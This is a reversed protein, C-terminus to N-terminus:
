TQFSFCRRCRWLRVAFCNSVVKNAEMTCKLLLRQDMKAQAKAEPDVGDVLQRLYHAKVNTQQLFKQEQPGYDVKGTLKIPPLIHDIMYMAARPDLHSKDKSKVSDKSSKANQEGYKHRIAKSHPKPATTPAKRKLSSPAPSSVHLDKSSSSHQTRKANGPSIYEEPENEDSSGGSMDSNHVGSIEEDDTSDEDPIGELEKTEGDGWTTNSTTTALKLSGETEYAASDTEANPAGGSIQSTSRSSPNDMRQSVKFPDGFGEV